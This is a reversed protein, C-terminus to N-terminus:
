PPFVSKKNGPISGPGNVGYVTGVSHELNRYTEFHCATIMIYFNYLIRCLLPLKPGLFSTERAVASSKTRFADMTGNARMNTLASMDSGYHFFPFEPSISCIIVERSSHEVANSLLLMQQLTFM